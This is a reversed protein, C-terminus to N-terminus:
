LKEVKALLDELEELQSEHFRIMNDASDQKYISETEEKIDTWYQVFDKHHGVLWKLYEKDEQFEAVPDNKYTHNKNTM